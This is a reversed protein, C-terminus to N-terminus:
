IIKVDLTKLNLNNLDIDKLSYKLNYLSKSDNLNFDNYKAKTLTYPIKIPINKIILDNYIFEDIYKLHEIISDITPFLPQFITTRFQIMSLLDIDFKFLKFLNIFNDKYEKYTIYNTIYTKFLNNLTHNDCCFPCKIDLALYDIISLLPYIFKPNSFNSDLKITFNYNKLYLLIDTFELLDECSIEGGTICINKPLFPYKKFYPLITNDIYDKFKVKKSNKINKMNFCYGCHFNCKTTHVLACMDNPFDIYSIFKSNDVVYIENLNKTM